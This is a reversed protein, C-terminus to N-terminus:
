PSTSAAARSGARQGQLESSITPSTQGSGSTSPHNRGPREAAAAEALRGELAGEIRLSVSVSPLAFRRALHLAPSDPRLRAIREAVADPLGALLLLDGDLAALATDIAEARAEALVLTNAVAPSWRASITPEGLPTTVLLPREAGALRDLFAEAADLAAARSGDVFAAGDRADADGLPVLVEDLAAWDIPDLGTPLADLWAGPAEGEHVIWLGAPEASGSLPRLDSEGLAHNVAAVALHEACQVLGKVRLVGPPAAALWALLEARRPLGPPVLRLTRVAAHLRGDGTPPAGLGPELLVALPGRVRGEFAPLIPGRALDALARRAAEFGARDLRDAGTVVILGGAALQARLLPDRGLRDLQAAAVVGIAGLFRYGEGELGAAIPGPPSLGSGEVVLIDPALRDRIEALADLLRGGAHCCFCGGAVGLTPVRTEGLLLADLPISGADNVLVAVRRGALAPLISRELFTTKGAGLPGTLLLADPAAAVGGSGSM